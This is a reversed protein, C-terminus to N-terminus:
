ALCLYMLSDIIMVFYVYRFGGVKIQDDVRGLFMCSGSPLVRVRDGTHYLFDETSSHGLVHHKFKQRTQEIDHLYGLSVGRGGILLEGEDNPDSLDLSIAEGSANLLYFSTHSIPKGIPVEDARDMDQHSLEYCSSWITTETPGYANIVRRCTKVLPLLSSPFTEGGVILQISIDGLWGSNQLQTFLSPTGQM